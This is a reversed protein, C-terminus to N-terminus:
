PNETKSHDAMALLLDTKALSGLLRPAPDDSLVPLREARREHHTFKELAEELSSSGTISPPGPGMIDRAIILNTLLSSGLYEKIDDLCVAGLYVGQEDVVYLYRFTNVIFYGAIESFSANMGVSIPEPNMLDSVRLRALRFAFLGAGKRMLSDSYISRSEIGQATFYSVVCGLMLPLILQYDLTMEFVMLIAMLPAHTTAALFMGMGALAFAGPSPHHGFGLAQYAHAFLYALSAGMFMTPTFVGGVAGSGFSACTAALKFVVVAALGAWLWQEQLIGDVVTYGNGCVQPYYIAILGVILGGLGIRLFVPIPLRSFLKESGRLARLFWPAILGIILGLLIYSFLETGSNLHFAPISYLPAEGALIRVTQTALVTSVILPGLTEMAITGLV